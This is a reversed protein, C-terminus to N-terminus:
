LRPGDRCLGGGGGRWSRGNVNGSSDAVRYTVQYRTGSAVSTRLAPPSSTAIDLVRDSVRIWGSPPAFFGAPCGPTGPTGPQEMSVHTTVAATLNGELSDTATAGADVFPTNAEWTLESVTTRKFLRPPTTDVIFVTRTSASSLNMTDMATYTLTFNTGVAAM